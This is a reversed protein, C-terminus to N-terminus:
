TGVRAPCLRCALSPPPIANDTDAVVLFRPDGVLIEAILIVPPEEGWELSELAWCHIRVDSLADRDVEAAWCHSCRSVRLPFHTDEVELAPARGEMAGVMPRQGLTVPRDPARM